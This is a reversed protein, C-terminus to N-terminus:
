APRGAFAAYRATFNADSDKVHGNRVEDAHFAWLLEVRGDSQSARVCFEQVTLDFTEPPVVQVPAAPTEKADADAM